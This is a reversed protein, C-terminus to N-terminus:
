KLKKPNTLQEYIFYGTAIAGAFVFMGVDLNQKVQAESPPASLSQMMLAASTFTIASALETTIPWGQPYYPTPNLDFTKDQIQPMEVKGIMALSIPTISDVVFIPKFHTTDMGSSQYIIHGKMIAESGPELGNLRKEIEKNGPVSPITLNDSERLLEITSHQRKIRVVVQAEQSEEASALFSTLLILIALIQKNM